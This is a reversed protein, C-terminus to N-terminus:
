EFPKAVKRKEVIATRDCRMEEWNLPLLTIKTTGSGKQKRKSGTLHLLRGPARSKGLVCGFWEGATSLRLSYKPAPMNTAANHVFLVKALVVDGPKYCEEVKLKDTDHIRIDEKRIVGFLDAPLRQMVGRPTNGVDNSSGGKQKWAKVTVFVARSTIRTVVGMVHDSVRVSQIVTEDYLVSLAGGGEREENRDEESGNEHNQKAITVCQTARLAVSKKESSGPIVDGPVVVIAASPAARREEKDM